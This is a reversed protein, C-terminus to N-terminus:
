ASAAGLERRAWGHELWRGDMMASFQAGAPLGECLLLTRASLESPETLWASHPECLRAALARLRPSAEASGAALGVCLAQPKEGRVPMTADSAEAARLGDPVFRLQALAADIAASDSDPGIAELAIAEVQDFWRRAGLLTSVADVSPSLEAAVTLPFCRGVADVSPVLLGAWGSLGILGPGLVFRWAPMSLFAEQWRAGLRLQSGELASQLWPDWSDRFSSPMRRAVFDGTGPIKGYWGVAFGGSSAERM